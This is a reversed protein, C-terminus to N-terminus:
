MKELELARDQSIGLKHRLRDLLRREGSSISGDDALCAHYEEIYEKEEDSLNALLLSDELETARIQSIGLKVRLKELLRREGKSIVGDNICATLEELYEQEEASLNSATTRHCSNDVSYDNFSDISKFKVDVRWETDVSSAFQKSVNKKVDCNVKTFLYEVSAKIDDIEVNSTFRTDSSKVCETYQLINNNMRREVLRQWEPQANYWVLGEPVYPKKLPALKIKFSREVSQSGREKNERSKHYDASAELLLTDVDGHVNLEDSNFESVKKGKISTITIEEAGLCELLYQLEHVKDIFFLEESESYPVYLDQKYPHGIYLVNPYPHGSPFKICPPMYSIRFVAINEALCGGIENDRVPMIFKRDNYESSRTYNEFVDKLLSQEIYELYSYNNQILEDNVNGNELIEKDLSKVVYNRATANNGLDNHVMALNSLVYFDASNPCLKYAKEFCDLATLYNSETQEDAIDKSSEENLLIRGKCFYGYHNDSDSAILNEALQMALKRDEVELPDQIREVCSAVKTLSKCLLNCKNLSPEDKFFLGRAISSIREGDKCFYFVQEIYEVYEYECWEWKMVEPVDNDNIVYIGGDTLVLGQDKNNWFGTDRMFLITEDLPISFSIRIMRRDLDSLNSGKVADYLNEGLPWFVQRAMEAPTIKSSEM